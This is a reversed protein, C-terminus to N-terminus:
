GGCPAASGVGEGSPLGHTHLKGKLGVPPLAARRLITHHLPVEVDGLGLQVQWRRVHGPTRVHPAVGSSPRRRRPRPRAPHSAPVLFIWFYRM